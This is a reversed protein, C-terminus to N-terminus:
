SALEIDGKGRERMLPLVIYYIGRLVRKAHRSGNWRGLAGSEGGAAKPVDFSMKRSCKDEKIPWNTSVPGDFLIFSTSLMRHSCYSRNQLLMHLVLTCFFPRCVSRRYIIVAPQLIWEDGMKFPTGIRMRSKARCHILRHCLGDPMRCQLFSSGTRTRYNVKYCLLADECLATLFDLKDERPLRIAQRTGYRRAGAAPEAEARTDAGTQRRARPLYSDVHLVGENLDPPYSLVRMGYVIMRAQITYPLKRPPTARAANCWAMWPVVVVGDEEEDKCEGDDNKQGNGATDATAASSSFHDLFVRAPVHLEFQEEGWEVPSTTIRVVILREHPDAHFPPTAPEPGPAIGGDDLWNKWDPLPGTPTPLANRRLQIYRSTTGRNIPPLALHFRLPRIEKEKEKQPQKQQQQCRRLDYVYISDETSVAYLIHHEDLFDFSSFNVESIM